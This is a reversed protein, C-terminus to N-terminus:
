FEDICIDNFETFGFRDKFCEMLAAKKAEDIMEEKENKPRQTRKLLRTSQGHYSKCDILKNQGGILIYQFGLTVNVVATEDTKTEHIDFKSRARLNVNGHLQRPTFCKPYYRVFRAAFDLWSINKPKKKLYENHYEEMKSNTLGLANLWAINEGYQYSFTGKVGFNVAHNSFGRYWTSSGVGGEFNKIRWFEIGNPLLIDIETLCHNLVEHIKCSEDGDSDPDTVWNDVAVDLVESPDFDGYLFQQILEWKSPGISLLRDRRFCVIRLSSLLRDKPDFCVIKQAM